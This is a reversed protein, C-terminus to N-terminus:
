YGLADAVPAPGPLRRLYDCLIRMGTFKKGDAHYLTVGVALQGEPCLSWNSWGSRTAVINTGANETANKCVKRQPHTHYGAVPTVEANEPEAQGPLVRLGKVVLKGGPGQRDTCVQFGRAFWGPFTPLTVAVSDPNNEVPLDECHSFAFKAVLRSGQGTQFRPDVMRGLLRLHCPNRGKEVVEITDIAYYRAPNPLTASRGIVVDTSSEGETGTLDTPGPRDPVSFPTLPEQATQLYHAGTTAIVHSGAKAWFGTSLVVEDPDYYEKNADPDYNAGPEVVENVSLEGLAPPVITAALSIGLMCTLLRKSSM